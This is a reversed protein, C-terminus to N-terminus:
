HKHNLDFQNFLLERVNKTVRRAQNLTKTGPASGSNEDPDWEKWIKPGGKRGQLGFRSILM